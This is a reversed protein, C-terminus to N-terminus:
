VGLYEGTCKFVGMLMNEVVGLSGVLFAGSSCPYGCLNEKYEWTHEMVGLYAGSCGPM